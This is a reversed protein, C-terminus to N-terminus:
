VFYIFMLCFLRFDFLDMWGSWGDMGDMWGNWGDMGDMWGNWADMGDMWGIRGSLGDMGGMRLHRKEMCKEICEKRGEWEGM